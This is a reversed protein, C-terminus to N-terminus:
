FMKTARGARRVILAADDEFAESFSEEEPPRDSPGEDLDDEDAAMDIINAEEQVKTSGRDARISPSVGTTSQQVETAAHEAYDYVTRACRKAFVTVPAYEGLEVEEKAVIYMEVSAQEQQKVMAEGLNQMHQKQTMGSSIQIVFASPSVEFSVELGQTLHASHLAKDMGGFNGRFREDYFPFLIRPVVFVPQYWDTFQQRYAAGAKAWKTLNLPPLFLPVPGHAQIDEIDNRRWAAVAHEKGGAILEFVLEDAEKVGPSQESLDPETLKFAPLILATRRDILRHVLAEFTRPRGHYARLFSASPLFNGDMPLILDTRHGLMLARNRLANAPYLRLNPDKWSQFEEIVLELDLACGQQQQEIEEHLMSAVNVLSSVTSGNLPTMEFSAVGFKAVVPVYVVAAVRDNWARCQSRLSSLSCPHFLFAM